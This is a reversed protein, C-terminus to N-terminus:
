QTEGGDVVAHPETSHPADELPLLALRDAHQHEGRLWAAVFQVLGYGLLVLSVFVTLLLANM